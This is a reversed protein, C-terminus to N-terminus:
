KRSLLVITEVHSTYPFMDVISVKELKYGNDHMYAIDRALTAPDCSVYVTKEVGLNIITDLCIKDCGKRPPDVIVVDPFSIKKSWDPLVDEVAGCIFEANSINNLRANYKADEIAMDVVEIGYVKKAKGAAILSITGIGCYLDYVVSNNDIGAYEIAKNYLKLTQVPNVQYFSNISIRFKIDGIYDYIYGDGYIVKNKDGLIVNTNKKNINLVFTKLNFKEVLESVLIDANKISDGNIVLGVMLDKTVFGKRIYVKRVLGKCSTEYYVSINNSNLFDTICKIIDKNEDIGTICDEFPIVDHSNKRYYGCVAKGYKDYALPVVLKNRYRYPAEMGLVEDLIYEERKIKGIKEILSVVKDRKYEIQSEYKINQLQCSGCSKYVPCKAEQRDPSYELFSVTKAYGYNSKLKMVHAIIKDGVVADKVFFTFGNSRGIGMGESNYATIDLEIEDNKKFQHEAM